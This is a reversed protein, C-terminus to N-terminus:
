NRKGRRVKNNVTGARGLNNANPDMVPTGGCSSCGSLTRSGSPTLKSILVQAAQQLKFPAKSIAKDVGKMVNHIDDGLGGSWCPVQGMGNICMQHEILQIMFEDFTMGQKDAFERQKESYRGNTASDYIRFHAMVQGLLEGISNLTGSPPVMITNGEPDLMRFSWTGIQNPNKVRM